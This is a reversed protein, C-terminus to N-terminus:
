GTRKKKVPAKAPAKRQRTSAAMKPKAAPPAEAAEAKAPKAARGGSAKAHAVSAKLADMLNIVSPAEEEPPTVIERGEVKAEILKTLRETYLDAYAAPDFREATTADLLMKTLKLEESAIAGDTIEDAFAAAHKIQSEYYLVDMALLKDVPRLMVLQERGFIVVQGTCCLGEDAMARQLLVYPKQGAPGDPTLYYTRGSFYVPDIQDIRVFRDITVSRDSESRLKDLEETEIIAYQGKAFEYGKVIEDASVEGHIPCVKRYQIRSNCDAHLQNLEIQRGGSSTATYAQVPVSVLSLRVFGKWSSRPPM